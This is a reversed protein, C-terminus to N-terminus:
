NEIIKNLFRDNLEKNMELSGIKFQTDNKIDYVIIKIIKHEKNIVIHGMTYGVTRFCLIKIDAGFEQIEEETPEDFDHWFYTHVYNWGDVYLTNLYDTFEKLKMIKIM